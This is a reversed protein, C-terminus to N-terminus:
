KRYTKRYTKRHKRKHNRRRRSKGGDKLDKIEKYRKLWESWPISKDANLQDRLKDKKAELAVDQAHAAAASPNRRYYDKMRMDYDSM